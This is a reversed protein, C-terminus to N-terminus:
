RIDLNAAHFFSHLLKPASRTQELSDELELELDLVDDPIFNALDAYKTHNWVHEVPNLDPAYPPLWEIRFRDDGMLAKAAKRHASWRDMVVILGRGLRRQVQRLFAEVEVATVNKEHVVFYLGVRKSRASLSLGAIVSLRDHRDWCYMVPTQGRPAWTRRVLPQLM